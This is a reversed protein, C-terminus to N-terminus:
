KHRAQGAEHLAMPAPCTKQTCAHMSNLSGRVTPYFVFRSVQNRLYESCARAAEKAAVLLPYAKMCGKHGGLKTAQLQRAPAHCQMMHNASKALFEQMPPGLCAQPAQTHPGHSYQGQQWPSGGVM